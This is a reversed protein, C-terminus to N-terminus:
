GLNTGKTPWNVLGGFPSGTTPSMAVWHQDISGDPQKVEVLVRGEMTVKGSGGAGGGLAAVSSAPARSMLGSLVSAAQQGAAGSGGGKGPPGVPVSGPTASGGLQAITALVNNLYANPDGGAPGGLYTNVFDGLSKGQYTGSGMNGIVAQLGSSIDPFDAFAGTGGSGKLGGFNNKTGQAPTNFSSEQKIMALAVSVPVGADKADQIIQAGYGELKTGKLMANIQDVTPDGFGAGPTGTPGSTYSGGGYSAGASTGGGTTAIGNYPMVPGGANMTRAGYSAQARVDPNATTALHQEILTLLDVQKLNAALLDDSASQYTGAPKDTGPTQAAGGAKDRAERAQIDKTQADDMFLYKPHLIAAFAGGSQKDREYAQYRSEKDAESRTAEAAADRKPQEVLAQYGVYAGAAISGLGIAAGAPFQGPYGPIPGQGPLTPGQMPPVQPGQMPGLLQPFVKTLLSGQGLMGGAGGGVQGGLRALAIATSVGGLIGGIAPGGISSAIGAVGLAGPHALGIDRTFTSIAQNADNMAKIFDRTAQASDEYNKATEAQAQTNSDAFSGMLDGQKVQGLFKSVSAADRKGTYQKGSLNQYDSIVQDVDSQGPSGQLRAILGVAGTDIDSRAGLGKLVGAYDQPNTQMGVVRELSEYQQPTMGLAQGGQVFRQKDNSGYTARVQAVLAKAYAPDQMGQQRGYEFDFYDSGPHAQQYANYALVGGMGDESSTLVSNAQNYLQAAGQGRLGPIGSAYANSLFDTTAQVGQIGYGFPNRQLSQANLNSILPMLESALVTYGGKSGRSVAEEIMAFYQQSQSTNAVVGQQAMTAQQQAVFTPDLGTLRAYGMGANQIGMRNQEGQVQKLADAMQLAQDRTYGYARGVNFVSQEHQDYSVGLDRIQKAQDTLERNHRQYDSVGQAAGQWPTIMQPVFGQGYSAIQQVGQMAQKLTYLTAAADKANQIGLVDLMIKISSASM